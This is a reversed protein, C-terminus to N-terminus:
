RQGPADAVAGPAGRAAAEYVELTRRACEEWSYRATQLHGAAILQRRTQPEHALKLLASALGQQDHPEVFYAAEGLIERLAPLDSAVVAVGAAMAELPPFGFGEALSPFIFLGADRYVNWLAAEPLSDLFHTRGQLPPSRRLAQIAATRGADPEVVAVLDYELGREVAQAYARLLRILNKRPESSGVFLIYPQSVMTEVQETATSLAGDLQQVGNHITVVKHADLPLRALIEQRSADSVTIVRSAGALARLNWQFFLRLRWPFAKPYRGYFTLPILDHLTVVLPCPLRRPLPPQSPRAHVTPAHFLDLRDRRALRPLVLLHNALASLKGLRLRPLPRWQVNPSLGSPPATGPAGYVVYEHPGGLRGLHQLLNLTYQGIGTYRTAPALVTADFGIRM